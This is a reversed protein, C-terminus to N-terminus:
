YSFERYIIFLFIYFDLLLSLKRTQKYNLTPSKQFSWIQEFQNVFKKM